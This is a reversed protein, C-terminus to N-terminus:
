RALIEVHRQDCKREPLVCSMPLMPLACVQTSTVNQTVTANASGPVAILLGVNTDDSSFGGHNSLATGTTYTM